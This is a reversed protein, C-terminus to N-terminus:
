KVIQKRLEDETGKAFDVWEGKTLKQTYLLVKEQSYYSEWVGIRFTEGPFARLGFTEPFRAIADQVLKKAEDSFDSIM